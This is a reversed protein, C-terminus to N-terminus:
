NKVEKIIYPEFGERKLSEALRQANYLEAFAGIQVKYLIDEQNVPITSGPSLKYHSLLAHYIAVACEYPDWKSADIRNDVFCCEILLSPCSVNKIVSLRSGDKVGRNKIGLRLAISSAIEEALARNKGNKGEYCYVECGTGGGANLHVSLALHPAQITVQKNILDLIVNASGATNVTCDVVTIGSSKLMDCLYSAVIRNEKSENMIGAAGSGKMGAPAHGAHVCIKM